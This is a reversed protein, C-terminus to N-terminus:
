ICRPFTWLSGSSNLRRLLLCSRGAGKIPSSITWGKLFSKSLQSVTVKSSKNELISREIIRTWKVEEESSPWYNSNPKSSKTNASHCKVKVTEVKVLRDLITLTMYNISPGVNKVSCIKTKFDLMFPICMSYILTRMLFSILTFRTFQQFGELIHPLWCGLGLYM